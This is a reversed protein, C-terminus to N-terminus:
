ETASAATALGAKFKNLHQTGFIVESLMKDGSHLVTTTEHGELHKIEQCGRLTCSLSTHVQLDMCSSLTRFAQGSGGQRRIALPVAYFSWSKWSDPVHPQGAVSQAWIGLKELGWSHSWDCTSSIQCSGLCGCWCTLSLQHMGYQVRAKLQATGRWSISGCACWCHVAQNSCHGNGEPANQTTGM